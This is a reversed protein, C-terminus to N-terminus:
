QARKAKWVMWSWSCSCPAGVTPSETSPSGCSSGFVPRMRPPLVMLRSYGDHWAVHASRRVVGVRAAHHDRQDRRRAPAAHHPRRLANGNAIRTTNQSACTCYISSPPAIPTLPASCHVLSSPTCQSSLLQPNFHKRRERTRVHSRHDPTTYRTLHIARRTLRTGHPTCRLATSSNDHDGRM